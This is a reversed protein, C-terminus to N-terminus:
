NGVYSCIRKVDCLRCAVGARGPFQGDLLSQACQQAQRRVRALSQPDVSVDRTPHGDALVHIVRAARVDRGTERLGAAYLQVQLDAEADAMDGDGAPDATKYDVVDVGGGEAVLVDARGTVTVVPTLQFELRAEVEDARRLTGGHLSVFSELGRRAAELMRQRGAPHAYPLFFEEDLVALLIDSPDAGDRAKRALICLIHHVARGYGLERALEPAFGWVHRMRYQHPCRLYTLIEDVSLTVVEEDLRRSREVVGTPLVSVGCGEVTVAAEGLFRSPRAARVQRQFRSLVLADQARTVAVYFLRRESDEGGEYRQVDFLIRDLLWPQTRGAMSSPFRKDVLAPVFVVPWELGKAQHITMLQVADVQPLQDVQQEDYAEQAYTKIFWALGNLLTGWAPNRGGRWAAGQYDLLLNSFRGLNAMRVADERNNPDWNPFGLLVLLEHYAETLGRFAGGRLREGFEEIQRRDISVPWSAVALDLLENGQYYQGGYRGAPRWGHGAFWLWLAAMAQAEPRRFLGIKGGVLYPINREEFAQIFADGSTSVSRLLVAIDGFRADGSDMLARIQEAVWGAEESPTDAEHYVVRGPWERVKEMRERLGPEPFREAVRNAVAIIPAVSRRNERLPVTRAGFRDAFRGFCGPDSGRWEYICQRPDGVVTCSELEPAGALAWILAEQARNIDQYEDVLLHKCGAVGPNAALREAVLRVMRDFTLLHQEDLMGWYRGVREPFDPDVPSGAIKALDPMEHCVVAESRKFRTVFDNYRRPDQGLGLEWGRQLLFAMEQNQDMVDWNGYGFHDQLLRACYAHITGVFMEGLNKLRGLGLLEEVRRYIREKMAAAARDTFTFAVIERPAAGRGLLWVIRRTLTETKGAGAGAMIRLYRDRALAAERQPDSLPRPREAIQRELDNM